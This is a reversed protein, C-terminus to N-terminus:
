LATWFMAAMLRDITEGDSALPLVLVEYEWRQGDAFTGETHRANPRGSVVVLKYQARVHDPSAAPPM